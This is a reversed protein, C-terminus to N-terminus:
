LDCSQVRAALFTPLSFEGKIGQVITIIIQSTEWFNSTLCDDFMVFAATSSMALKQNTRQNKTETSYTKM